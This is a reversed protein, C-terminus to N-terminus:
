KVEPAKDLPDAHGHDAVLWSITLGLAGMLRHMVRLSPSHQEDSLISQISGVGIGAHKALSIIGIGKGGAYQDMAWRLNARVLKHLALEDETMVRKREM